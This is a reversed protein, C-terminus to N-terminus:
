AVRLKSGFMGQPRFLLVGLIIVFAFADKYGAPLSYGFFDIGISLNEVLGLIFSGAVTGWVNGLGGLIMAAFAKITYSSGMTPQVNTEMGVLVGSYATLLTACLFVMTVTRGSSISISEAAHEHQALARIKRGAATSHIFFALLSLLGIASGIIVIQIPTIFIGAIEISDISASPSISKVNVGFIMAVASELITGLTLTTVFPLLPHLTRFPFIFIRLSLWGVLLSAGVSFAVSGLWGWGMMHFAFYVAYAGIMMFHGHAFNLIKLLGYTLSLGSSALAYISGSILANVLLQPLIDM